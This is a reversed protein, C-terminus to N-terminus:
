HLEPPQRKTDFIPLSFILRVFVKERFHRLLMGFPENEVLVAFM